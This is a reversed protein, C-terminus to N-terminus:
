LYISALDTTWAPKSHRASAAPSLTPNLNRAQDNELRLENATEAATTKGITQGTPFQTRPGVTFEAKEPPLFSPFGM